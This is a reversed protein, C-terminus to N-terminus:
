GRRTRIAQELARQTRRANPSLDVHNVVTRKQVQVPTQFMIRLLLRHLRPMHTILARARTKLWPRQLILRVVYRLPGAVLRKVFTKM